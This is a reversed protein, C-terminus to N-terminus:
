KIVLRQKTELHAGPVTYGDKIAQKILEKDLSPPPAVPTRFYDAPILDEVDIVVSPPNNQIAITFSTTKIKELHAIQFNILLWKDINEIAKEEVIRRDKLRKEEDEMAKILAQKNKRVFCYDDIKNHIALSDGALTDTIAELSFDMAELKNQLALREGVLQYLSTM